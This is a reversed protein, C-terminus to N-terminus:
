TWYYQEQTLQTHTNKKKELLLRCVLDFRSQLESTHEESRLKKLQDYMRDYEADSIEPTNLNYYAHRHRNLTQVLEKIKDATNMTRNRRETVIDMRLMSFCGEKGMIMCLFLSHRLIHM